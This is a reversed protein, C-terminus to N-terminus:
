FVASSSFVVVFGERSKALDVRLPTATLGHFRVGFGFDDKLDNFDLDSSRAAVKGTDYFVATDLYRNVIIRWEAQLLLSHRDRFRWSSYGRLTSGGGLSPLMFFPIEQDSKRTTTTVLGHLSIVWTERLIPIHQIAEYEVQQFGFAGDRDSFDHGTVGVFGGRRSYGAATRYDLGITAQTHFYDISAGLGPLTEPTYRTEVSPSSGGGPEQAWQSWEFGGRLMLLQRTPWVTLLVSGYPQEFGYNTRDDKSTANGVGFFGVQTAERWGGVLSLNGRRNFLRPAVFEAELRKYGSFTISGRLDVLNYPSVHRM